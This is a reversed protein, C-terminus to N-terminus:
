KKLGCEEWDANWLACAEKMCDVPLSRETHYSMLPCLKPDKKDAIIM